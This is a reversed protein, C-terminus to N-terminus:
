SVTPPQHLLRQSWRKALALCPAEVAKHLLWAAFVTIVIALAFALVGIGLNGSAPPFVKEAVHICLLHVLYIGYSVSGLFVPLPRRFLRQVPGDGLLLVVLGVAVVAPHLYRMADVQAGLLHLALVAILVLNGTGKAALRALRPHVRADDLLVAVICGALINWYPFLCEGFSLVLPATACAVGLVLAAAARWLGRRALAGFGLLPWALYFKEEIGLSWSQYFPVNKAYEIGFSEPFFFPLEQYYLLYAPLLKRLAEGKEAGIRLGFILLCYVGLVAFYPPLIRLGRRVYFASLSLAGRKREERLALTTIIFGSVLFFITMAGYPNAWSVVPQKMHQGIVLMVGLGRYGDLELFRSQARYESFSKM